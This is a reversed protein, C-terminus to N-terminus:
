WPFDGRGAAESLCPPEPPGQCMAVGSSVGEPRSGCTTGTPPGMGGAGLGGMGQSGGDERPCEGNHEAYGWSLRSMAPLSLAPCCAGTCGCLRARSRESPSRWTPTGQESGPSRPPRAPAAPAEGTRSNRPLAAQPSDRSLSDGPPPPAPAAPQTAQPPLAWLSPAASGLPPGSRMGM